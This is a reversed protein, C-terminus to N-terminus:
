LVFEMLPDNYIPNRGFLKSSTRIIEDFTAHPNRVLLRQELQEICCDEMLSLLAGTKDTINKAYREFGKKWANFDQNITFKTPTIRIEQRVYQSQRQPIKWWNWLWTATRPVVIWACKLIILAITVDWIYKFYSQNYYYNYLKDLTIELLTSFPTNVNLTSRAGNGFKSRKLEDEIVHKTYILQTFYQLGAYMYMLPSWVPM